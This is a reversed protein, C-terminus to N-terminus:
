SSVKGPRVDPKLKAEPIPVPGPAPTVAGNQRDSCDLVTARSTLPNQLRAVLQYSSAAGCALILLIQM